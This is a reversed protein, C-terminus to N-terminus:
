LNLTNSSRLILHPTEGRRIQNRYRGPPIKFEKRFVVSMYESHEFGTKQAIADLSLDSERLLEEVRKLRQALIADHPTKGTAKQFRNEFVRRSLPVERLVDLVTIGSCANDRIFRAAKRIDPDSVALIDTSQRTAVGLPALLHADAPISEGRMMKELIEAALFGAGMANPIVSSLSPYSLNCVIPDNDVGVVAVEDPVHIELERCLDLIQQARIDYSAMLGIPKPLKKLWQALHKQERPWSYGKSLRGTTEFLHCDIGRATLQAVFHDSRWKSWNFSPDGCFALQRFGREWLHEIALRAVCADDTEVWPIGDLRRAASVDVTPIGARKVATAIADSEIRAIIGDGQWTRLWKPPTAGRDQEPLYISWGDHQRQYEIIGELIGRAYANSTEILLAVAKRTM